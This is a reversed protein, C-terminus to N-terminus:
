VLREASNKVAKGCPSNCIVFQCSVAVYCKLIKFSMESYMNCLDTVPSSSIYNESDTQKYRLLSVSLYDQQPSPEFLYYGEHAPHECLYHGQQKHLKAVFIIDKNNMCHTWLSVIEKNLLPNLSITEKMHRTSVVIIDKNNMCHTWLSVIEMNLLPNLSITDKM